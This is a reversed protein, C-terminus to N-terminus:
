RMPRSTTNGLILSGLQWQDMGMLFDVYYFQLDGINGSYLIERNRLYLFHGLFKFALLFNHTFLPLFM